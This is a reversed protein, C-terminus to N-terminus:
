SSTHTAADPRRTLRPVPLRDLRGPPPHQRSLNVVLSKRLALVSITVLIAVTFISLLLHANLIVSPIRGPHLRLWVTTVLVGSAGGTWGALIAARPFGQILAAIIALPVAFYLLWPDSFKHTGLDRGPTTLTVGIAALGILAVIGLVIAALTSDGSVRPRAFAVEPNFALLIVILVLAVFILLLPGWRGLVGEGPRVDASRWIRLSLFPLVGILLGTTALWGANKWWSRTFLLGAGLVVLGVAAVFDAIETGFFGPGIPVLRNPPRGFTAFSAGALVLLLGAIASLARAYPPSKIREDIANKLHGYDYPFDADRL